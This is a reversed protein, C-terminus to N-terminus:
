FLATLGALLIATRVYNMQRRWSGLSRLRSRRPVGPPMSERGIHCHRLPEALPRSPVDRRVWLAKVGSQNVSEKGCPRRADRADIKKYPPIAFRIGGIEEDSRRM